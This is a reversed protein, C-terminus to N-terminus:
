APSLFVTFLHIEQSIPADRRYALRRGESLGELVMPLVVEENFRWLSSSDQARFAAVTWYTSRVGQLANM